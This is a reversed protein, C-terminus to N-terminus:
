GCGPIFPFFVCWRYSQDVWIAFSCCVCIMLILGAVLVININIKSKKTVDSRTPTRKESPQVQPQIPIASFPEPQNKEQPLQELNEVDGIETGKHETEIQEFAQEIARILREADMSFRTHSIEIANRRTLAQLDNPLDISRPMIAEDVLVPIVRVDRKLASGVELRVFDEPNDLRRNGASDAANLWNPGIVVLFIDTIDVAEEIAKVFDMGPQITDVDMFIRDHGFALELRDYIRGAAGRSDERRYSIFIHGDM